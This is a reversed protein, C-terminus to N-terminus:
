AGIAHTNERMFLCFVPIGSSVLGLLYGIGLGMLKYDLNSFPFIIVLFLPFIALVWEARKSVYFFNANRMLQIICAIVTISMVVWLPIFGVGVNVYGEYGYHHHLPDSLEQGQLTNFINPFKKAVDSDKTLGGTWQFHFTEWHFPLSFGSTIIASVLATNQQGQSLFKRTPTNLTTKPSFDNIPQVGSLDSLTQSIQTDMWECMTCSKYKAGPRLIISQHRCQPCEESTNM